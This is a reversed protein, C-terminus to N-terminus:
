WRVPLEDVGGGVAPGETRARPPDAVRQERRSRDALVMATM